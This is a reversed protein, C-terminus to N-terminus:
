HERVNFNLSATSAMMAIILSLLGLHIFFFQTLNSVWRGYLNCGLVRWRHWCFASLITLLITSDRRADRHSASNRLLLHWQRRLRRSAGAHTGRAVNGLLLELHQGSRFGSPTIGVFVGSDECRPCQCSHRMGRQPSAHPAAGTSFREAHHRAGCDFVDSDDCGDPPVPMLAAHRAALYCSSTNGQDFAARRSASSSAVTRAATQPCQCSHRM